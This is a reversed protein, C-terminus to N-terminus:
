DRRISSTDPLFKVTKSQLWLSEAPYDKPVLGADKMIDVSRRYHDADIAMPVAMDSVAYEVRSLWLRADEETHKHEKCIRTIIEDNGQVFM